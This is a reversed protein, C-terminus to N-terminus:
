GTIADYRTRGPGEVRIVVKNPICVIVEGARRIRGTSVCVHLPCDSHSVWVAGGCIEIDTRGVPGEVELNHAVFISGRFVEKNEVEVIVEQGAPRLRTVAVSGIGCAALLSLILVRDALTLVRWISFSRNRPEM